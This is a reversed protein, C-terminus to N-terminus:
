QKWEGKDYEEHTLVSKMFITQWEYKIHVILRYKNGRINFVTFPDVYDASAYTQRVEAFNRWDAARAVKYWVNLPGELTRDREIAKRLVKRSIIRV